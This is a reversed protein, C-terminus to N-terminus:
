RAVADTDDIDGQPQALAAQSGPIFDSRPRLQLHFLSLLHQQHHLLPLPLYPLTTSIFLRRYGAKENTESRKQRV